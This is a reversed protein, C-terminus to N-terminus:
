PIGFSKPWTVDPMNMLALPGAYLKGNQITVSISLEPTNSGEPTRALLGLVLRAADADNQEILDQKTMADVTEFFGRFKATMAGVPQLRNDLAATGTASISLPPWDLGFERVELTGGGEHWAQLATPLPGPTVTGVIDATLRINRLTSAFAPYDELFPSRWNAANLTLRWTPTDGTIKQISFTGSQLAAIAIGGTGEAIQVDDVTVAIEAVQGQPTLVPQLDAQKASVLATVAPPTWVGAIKHIGALDVTFRLPAWPAAWLRISDTRWMWGGHTVPAEIAWLPYTVVVRGPFGSLQPNSFGIAYGEDRHAAMWREAQSQMVSATSFWVGVYIATVVALGAVVWLTRRHNQFGTKITM